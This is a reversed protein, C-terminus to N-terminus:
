DRHRDRMTERRTDNFILHGNKDDYVSRRTGSELIGGDTHLQAADGAALDHMLGYPSLM